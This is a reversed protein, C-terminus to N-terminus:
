RPLRRRLRGLRPSLPVFVATLVVVGIVLLHFLSKAVSGRLLPFTPKEYRGVKLHGPDVAADGPPVFVLRHRTPLGVTVTALGPQDTTPTCIHVAELDGM